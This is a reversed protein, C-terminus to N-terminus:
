LKMLDKFFILISRIDHVLPCYNGNNIKPSCRLLQPKIKSLGYQSSLCCPKVQWPRAPLPHTTASATTRAATQLHLPAPAALGGAQAARPRGTRCQSPQRRGGPQPFEGRRRGQRRQPMHPGQSFCPDGNWWRNLSTHVFVLLTSPRTIEALALQEWNSNKSFLESSRHQLLANNFPFPVTQIEFQLNPGLVAQQGSEVSKAASTRPACHM